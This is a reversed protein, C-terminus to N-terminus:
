NATGSGADPQPLYELAHIEAPPVAKAGNIWIAKEKIQITEGPLGVLRHVYRTEPNPPHRFVILDWRDAQLFKSCIFRDPGHVTKPLDRYEAIKLCRTCIGNQAEDAPLPPLGDMVRGASVIAPGQCHPCTPSLHYGILTPAMSNSSIVFAQVLQLLGFYIGTALVGSALL